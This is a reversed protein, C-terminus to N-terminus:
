ISMEGIMEKSEEQVKKRRECRRVRGPYSPFFELRVSLQLEGKDLVASALSNSFKVRISM